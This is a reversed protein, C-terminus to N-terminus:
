DQCIEISYFALPLSELSSIKSYLLIFISIWTSISFKVFRLYLVLILGNWYLFIPQPTKKKFHLIVETHASTYFYSLVNRLSLNIYWLTVASCNHVVFTTFVIKNRCHTVLSELKLVSSLTMKKESCYFILLFLMKSLKLLDYFHLFKVGITHKM